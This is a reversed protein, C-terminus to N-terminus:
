FLGCIPFQSGPPSPLVSSHMFHSSDPYPLSLFGLFLWISFACVCLVCLISVLFTSLMAPFSLDKSINPSYELSLFFIPLLFGDCVESSGPFFSVLVTAGFLHKLYM